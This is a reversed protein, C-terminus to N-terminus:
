KKEGISKEIKLKVSEFLDKGNEKLHTGNIREQPPFVTEDHPIEIGSDILGKLGAFVRSKHVPTMLGIDLVAKNIGKQKAKLGTIFGTLYAASINGTHMTWGFSKLTKSVTYVITKDGSRQYEIIEVFTNNNSKRIVARPINARLVALRKRYNTKQRLRRRFPVQYTSIHSM